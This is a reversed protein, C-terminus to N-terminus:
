TPGRTASCVVTRSAQPGRPRRRGSDERRPRRRPRRPRALGHADAHADGADREKPGVCKLGGPNPKSVFDDLEGARVLNVWFPSTVVVVFGVLGPFVYQKNYLSM